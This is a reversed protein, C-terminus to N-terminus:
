SIQPSEQFEEEYEEIEDTAQADFSEIMTPRESLTEALDRSKELNNKTNIYLSKLHTIIEDETKDLHGNMGNIQAAYQNVQKSALDLAAMEQTTEFAPMRQTIDNMLMQTKSLMVELSTLRKELDISVTDLKKFESNVRDYSNTFRNLTEGEGIQKKLHVMQALSHSFRMKAESMQTKQIKIDERINGFKPVSMTLQEVIEKLASVKGANSSFAQVTKQLAEFEEKTTQEFEKAFSSLEIVNTKFAKLNQVQSTNNESIAFNTKEIDDTIEFSKDLKGYLMEIQDVCQAKDSEQKEVVSSFKSLLPSINAIDFEKAYSEKEEATFKGSSVITDLIKEIPNVISRAQSTITDQMSMLPYFFLMIRTETNYKVPSVFMEYPRVESEDNPKIQIQYIGAVKHKLAELIPDNDGINTLKSLYDWSLYDKNVEEEAVEWDDCFQKNAWIVKLNKDLMISSLPLAEQFITGYSMRKDIYESTHDTFNQFHQSFNKLDQVKGGILGDSVFDEVFKELDESAKKKHWKTFAMGGFFMSSMLGLIGLLGMIYYRGMQEVQIKQYSLEPSITTLWKNVTTELNSMMGAFFNREDVYKTLMKTETRMNNIRSIVESKEARSLFSKETVKQMYSLNKELSGIFNKLKGKNIHGKSVELIRKSTRSLNRWKKVRVYENFKVLKDNFVSVIKSVKPFSILNSIATKIQQVEKKVEVFSEDNALNSVKQLDGQLVDLKKIAMKSNESLVIAKVETLPKKVEYQELIYSAKHLEKNRSGDVFGLKWFYFITGLTVVMLFVFSFNYFQNLKQTLKEIM